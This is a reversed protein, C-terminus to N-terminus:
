PASYFVYPTAYDSIEFYVKKENADVVGNLNADLIGWGYRYPREKGDNTGSATTMKDISMFRKVITQGAYIELTGNTETWNQVSRGIQNQTEQTCGIILLSVGLTLASIRKTTFRSSKTQM